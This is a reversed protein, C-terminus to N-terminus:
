GERYQRKEQRSLDEADMGEGGFINLHLFGAFLDFEEAVVVEDTEARELL